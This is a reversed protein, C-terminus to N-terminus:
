EDEDAWPGNHKERMVRKAELARQQIAPVLPEGNEDVLISVQSCKCNSSIIGNAVM